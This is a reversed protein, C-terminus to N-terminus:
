RSPSAVVTDAAVALRDVDTDRGEGTHVQQGDTRISRSRYGSAFSMEDRVQPDTHLFPM